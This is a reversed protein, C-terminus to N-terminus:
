HTEFIIKQDNKLKFLLFKKEDTVVYVEFNMNSTFLMSQKIFEMGGFEAMGEEVTGSVFAVLKKGKYHPYKKIAKNNFRPFARSFSTNM